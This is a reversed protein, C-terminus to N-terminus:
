YKNVTSSIVINKIMKLMVTEKLMVLTVEDYDNDESRDGEGEGDDDVTDSVRSNDDVSTELMSVSSAARCGRGVGGARYPALKM